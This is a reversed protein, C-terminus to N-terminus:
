VTMATQPTARNENTAHAAGRKKRQELWEQFKREEEPDAFLDAMFKTLGKCMKRQHPSM